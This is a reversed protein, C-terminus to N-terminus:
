NLSSLKTPDDVSVLGCQISHQVAADTSIDQKRHVNNTSSRVNQLLAATSLSDTSENWKFVVSIGDSSFQESLRRVDLVSNLTNINDPFCFM